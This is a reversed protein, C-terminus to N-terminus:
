TRESGRRDLGRQCSSTRTGPPQHVALDRHPDDGRVRGCSGQGSRARSEWALPRRREARVEGAGMGLGDLVGEFGARAFRPLAGLEGVKSGRERYLRWSLKLARGSPLECSKPVTGDVRVSEVLKYLILGM